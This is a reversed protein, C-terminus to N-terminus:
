LRESSLGKENLLVFSSSVPYRVVEMNQIGSFIEDASLGLEVALYAAIAINEAAGRGLIPTTVRRTIKAGDKMCLTLYFSTEFPTCNVDAVAERPVFTTKQTEEATFKDAFNEQLEAGCVARKAAFGILKKKEPSISGVYFSRAADAHFGNLYAGVDVSVIENEKIIRDSPFGHVVQEDISVCITGPFGGLGLFNPKAGRSLIYDYAFDDLEKTSIGVRIKQEILKLMDVVIRCSAKIKEIEQPTKIYIM